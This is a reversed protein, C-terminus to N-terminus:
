IKYIYFAVSHSAPLVSLFLQPEGSQALSRSLIRLWNLSLADWHLIAYLGLSVPVLVLGSWILGSRHICLALCLTYLVFVPFLCSASFLFLSSALLSRVTHVIYVCQPIFTRHPSEPFHPPALCNRSISLVHPYDRYLLPSAIRPCFLACVRLM